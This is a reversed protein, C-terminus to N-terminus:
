AGGAAGPACGGGHPSELLGTSKESQNASCDRNRMIWGSLEITEGPDRLSVLADRSVYHIGSETVIFDMPVDYPQPQITAIRSLEFAVGFKLPQPRLITLTRDFYGGGYGLRYGRSDFGVPPILMAQPRVVATGEPVPLDFVDKSVRV